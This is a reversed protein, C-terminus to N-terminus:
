GVRRRWRTKKWWWSWEYIIVDSRTENIGPCAVSDTSSLQQRRQAVTAVLVDPQGERQNCISSLTQKSTCIVRCIQACSTCPPCFTGTIRKITAIVRDVALCLKPMYFSYSICLCCCAIFRVDFVAFIMFLHKVWWWMAHIDLKWPPVKRNRHLMSYVTGSLSVVCVPYPLHLPPYNYVFFATSDCLHGRSAGCIDTEQFTLLRAWNVARNDCECVGFYLLGRSRTPVFAHRGAQSM